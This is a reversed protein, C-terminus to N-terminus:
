CIKRRKDEIPRKPNQSSQIPKVIMNKKETMMKERIHLAGIKVYSVEFSGLHYKIRHNKKNKNLNNKSNGISGFVFFDFKSFNAGISKFNECM